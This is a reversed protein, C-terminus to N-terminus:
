SAGISPGVVVKSENWHWAALRWRLLGRFGAMLQDTLDQPEVQAWRNSPCYTGWESNVLYGQILWKLHHKVNWKIAKRGGCNTTSQIGFCQTSEQRRSEVILEGRSGVRHQRTRPAELYRILQPHNKWYEMWACRYAICLVDVDRWRKEDIPFYKAINWWREALFFLFARWVGGWDTKISQNIKGVFIWVCVCVGDRFIIEKKFFSKTTWKEKAKTERWSAKKKDQTLLRPKRPTSNVTHNRQDHFGM